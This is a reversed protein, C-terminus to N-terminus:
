EPPTAEVVERVIEKARAEQEPLVVLRCHGEESFLHSAIGIERLCASLNNAFAETDGNWIEAVPEDEYWNEPLDQPLFSQEESEPQDSEALALSELEEPTLEDPDVQGQLDLIIKRAKERDAGSILIEMTPESSFFSFSSKPDPVTFAIEAEELAKQVSQWEAMDNGRWISVIRADGDLIPPSSALADVLDVDCDACHKVGRIYECKCSPCIM